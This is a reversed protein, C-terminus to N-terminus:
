RPQMIGFRTHWKQHWPALMEGPMPEAIFYGQAVDCDASRALDWDQRNEIGEAVVNVALDRGLAISSRLIAETNRNNWAGSVVSRDIKLETFPLERMQTLLSNGTGFVNISLGFGMLRLRTLIEISVRLDNMLRSEAVELVLYRPEVGAQYAMDAVFEPFELDSLWDTSVNVAVPVELGSRRWAAIQRLSNGLVLRTLEEIMDNDEVTALFKGPFLMGDVPHKWRVLAEVGALAGDRLVVKPQYYNLLECAAIAARIEAAGYASAVHAQPEHSVPEQAPTWSDLLQRLDEPFFPKRLYGLPEFGSSRVLRDTAQVIREDVGSVLVLGGSFGKAVLHRVFQVGDMEPMKLDCLIIDPSGLGEGVLSLARYGSTCTSVDAYGLARLMTEIIELMLPEDDLVLVRVASKDIMMFEKALNQRQAQL